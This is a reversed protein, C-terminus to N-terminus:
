DRLELYIVTILSVLFIIILLADGHRSYLTKVKRLSVKTVAVEDKFPQSIYQVKGSSQILSTPGTNSVSILDRATEISRVQALSLYQKQLSIPFPDLNALAIIWEGGENSAKALAKGDSLEYCIAGAASPGNWIFLRSSGGPDLGGVASLGTQSLFPLNPVWEGLPVLRHKDLSKSFKTDGKDIALLSSRQSGEILRFGGTLFDIPAPAILNQNLPLTGEPALLISAGLGEATALSSQIDQPLRALNNKSFKDRIPIDTQWTAVSISKGIIEQNLLSWGLFHGMFLSIMGFVILNKARRLNQFCLIIQWLWWGILLQLFALGGSGIWRSLGALFLDGPLLSSGIGIWFLPSQSLLTETIGWISAFFTAYFIQKKFPLYLNPERYIKIRLFSWSCVLAAGCLGCFLWILIAILLSLFSPIGIWSLPHLALLWKHSILVAFGGWLFGSSSYKTAAWLSTIAFPMFFGYPSGLILGALIGGISAQASSFFREKSINIKYFM